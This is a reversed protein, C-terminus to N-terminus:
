IDGGKGLKYHLFHPTHTVSRAGLIPCRKCLVGLLLHARVRSKITRKEILLNKLCSCLRSNTVM